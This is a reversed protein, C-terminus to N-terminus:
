PPSGEKVPTPMRGPLPREERTGDAYTVVVRDSSVEITAAGRDSALQLIVAKNHELGPSPSRFTVPLSRCTSGDITQFVSFHLQPETAYGTDGSLAIAQGTRVRDGLRVLVGKHKLHDYEAYTGDEHKIVVYNNEHLWKLDPGGKRCDSRLAIVIGERAACVTTGVPMQWDTAEEDGSGPGHSYTGHPGQLVPFTGQFPLSYLYPQTQENGRADPRRLGFNWHYRWSYKWPTSRGSPDKLTFSVLTGRQQTVEVTHPLPSSTSMGHFDADVTITAERCDRMTYELFFVNGRWVERITVNKDEAWACRPVGGGGGFM